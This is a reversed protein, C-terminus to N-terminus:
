CGTSIETALIGESTMAAITNVRQGRTFFRHYIPTTGRLAYGFKRLNDRKDTGTEAVWVFMNRPM